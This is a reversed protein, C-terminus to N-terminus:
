LWGNRFAAVVAALRSHVRLENLLLRIHNRATEQAIGLKAAIQETTLGDALLRLVELQRPTLRPRSENGTQAQTAATLRAM